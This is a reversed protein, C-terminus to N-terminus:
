NTYGGCVDDVIVIPLTWHEYLERLLLANWVILLYLALVFSLSRLTLPAREAKVRRHFYIVNLREEILHALRWGIEGRRTLTSYTFYVAGTFLYGFLLVLMRLIRTREDVCALPKDFGNGWAFAVIAGLALIFFGVIGLRFNFYYRANRDAGDWLRLLFEKEDM